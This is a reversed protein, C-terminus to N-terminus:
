GLSSFIAKAVTEGYLRNGKWAFHTGDVSYAAQQMLAPDGGIGAYVDATKVRDYGWTAGYATNWWAPLTTRIFNRFTLHRAKFAADSLETENPPMTCCFIRQVTTRSTEATGFMFKEITDKYEAEFNEQSNANICDNTGGMIVVTDPQWALVTAVQLKLQNAHTGIWWGPNESINLEGPRIGRKALYRRLSFRAANDRYPGNLAVNDTISDSLFAVSRLQPHVPMIGAPALLSIQLNRIFHNKVFTGAVGRISGIYLRNAMNALTASFKNGGVPLGDVALMLPSGNNLSQWGVQVTVFDGKDESHYSSTPAIGTNVVWDSFDFSYSNVNNYGTATIEGSVRKRPAALATSTGDPSFSLASEESAPVYGSTGNSPDHRAGWDREIELSIHGGDQLALITSTATQLLYGANGGNGDNAKMGRVPDHIPAATTNTVTSWLGSIDAATIPGKLSHRFLVSDDETGYDLWGPFHKPM